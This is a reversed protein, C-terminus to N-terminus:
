LSKLLAIADDKQPFQQNEALKIAKQLSQKALAPESKAIYVKALHYHFVAVDPMKDVAKKLATQADDFKGVKYSAWGYSDLFQPVQSDKAGKVLNYAREITAQDTRTDLLLSALNNNVVEVDSRQKAMSEYVKIADEIRNSAEYLSAQTLM